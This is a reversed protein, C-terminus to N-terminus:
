PIPSLIAPIPLADPKTESASRRAPPMEVDYDIAWPRDSIGPTLRVAIHRELPMHPSSLTILISNAPLGLFRSPGQPIPLGALQGFESGTVIPQEHRWRVVNDVGGETIGPMVSLLARPATNVNFGEVSATTTLLSWQSDERAIPEIKDWDLIRRVEWPTRLPANAPPERGADAYEPAEAGNLRRLSDADIYDQLKAILPGRDHDPVGFIGLVGFLDGDSGLNLNILGRADQFRVIADELHYPHDDLRIYNATPDFGTMMQPEHIATSQVVSLSEVGRFSFPRTGLLYLSVATDEAIQRKAAVEERNAFAQDLATSVWRTMIEAMISLAVILVLTLVLAFGGQHTRNDAHRIVAHSM